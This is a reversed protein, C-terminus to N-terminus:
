KRRRKLNSRVPDRLGRVYGCIYADAIRESNFGRVKRLQRLVRPYEKSEWILTEDRSEPYARHETQEFLRIMVKRLPALAKAVEKGPVNM